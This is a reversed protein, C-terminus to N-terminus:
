RPKRDAQSDGPLAAALVDICREIREYSALFVADSQDIPDHIRRTDIPAPDLDGLIVIQDPKVEFFRTLRHAQGADMVAILDAEATLEPTLVVSRHAALDIGMQGAVRIATDPSPRDPGIFGASVVALNPLRSAIAREFSLAAYPSRCINGHCVFMVRRPPERTSLERLLRRRRFPHALRDPAHRVARLWRRIVVIVSLNSPLPASTENVALECLNYPFPASPEHLPLTVRNRCTEPLTSAM